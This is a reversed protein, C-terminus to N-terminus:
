TSRGLGLCLSIYIHIRKCGTAPILVLGPGLGTRKCAARAQHVRHRRGCDFTKSRSALLDLNGWCPDPLEM